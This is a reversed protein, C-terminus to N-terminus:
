DLSFLFCYFVQIRGLLRGLLCYFLFSVEIDSQKSYLDTSPVRREQLRAILATGGGEKRAMSVLERSSPKMGSGRGSSGSASPGDVDVDVLSSGSASGPRVQLAKALLAAVEQMSKGESDFLRASHLRGSRQQHKLYRFIKACPEDASAAAAAALAEEIEMQQEDNAEEEALAQERQEQMRHEFVLIKRAQEVQAKRRALVAEKQEVVHLRRRTLAQMSQAIEEGTAYRGGIKMLPEGDTSYGNSGDEEAAAAAAAVATSSSSSTSTSPITALGGGLQREFVDAARLRSSEAASNNYLEPPHPSLGALVLEEPLLAYRDAGNITDPPPPLKASSSNFAVDGGRNNGRQGQGQRRRSASQPRSSPRSSPRSRPNGGSLTTATSPGYQSGAHKYSMVYRNSTSAVAGSSYESILLDDRESPGQYYHSTFASSSDDFTDNEDNLGRPDAPDRWMGLRLAAEDEVDFDDGEAGALEEDDGDLADELGGMGPIEGWGGEYRRDDGYPDEGDEYVDEDEDEYYEEQDVYENRDEEDDAEVWAKLSDHEPPLAHTGAGYSPAGSKPLRGNQLAMPADM